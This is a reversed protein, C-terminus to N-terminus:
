LMARFIVRRVLTTFSNKDLPWVLLLGQCQVFNGGFGWASRSAPLGFDDNEGDQWRGGKGGRTEFVVRPLFQPRLMILIM